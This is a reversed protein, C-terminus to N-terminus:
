PMEGKLIVELIDGGLNGGSVICVVTGELEPDGLAAAVPVAGAGEAITEHREVLSRIATAVAELSVVRSGDILEEILPWMEALVGGAGIGDVFSARRPISVPRGARRSAQLPAATEVECAEVSTEPRLTRLASSIGCSLGGGGFPVLVTDIRELKEALELGITANGEIVAQDAVPHVFFGRAGPYSREELVRWWRDFSVTEIRAGLRKVASRKATPASDPMVVTARAASQRAAWAVGQAMNGASATWVGEMLGPDETSRIANLAGRLKFSRIPQASELKLYIDANPHSVDLRVLPSARVDDEIRERAAEVADLTPVSM